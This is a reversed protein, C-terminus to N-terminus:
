VGCGCEGSFPADWAAKGVDGTGIGSSDVVLAIPLGDRNWAWFERNEIDIVELEGRLSSPDKFRILRDQSDGPM